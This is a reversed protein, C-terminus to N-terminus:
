RQETRALKWANLQSARSSRGRLAASVRRRVHGTVVRRYDRRLRRYYVARVAKVWSGSLGREDIVDLLQRWSPIDGRSIYPLSSIQRDTVDAPFCEPVGLGCARFMLITRVCKECRGCNSFKQPGAWCVRLHRMAAPWRAIATIKQPRSYGGADHVIPFPESSLLPDSIPHSGWRWTGLFQYPESGAILGVGGNPQLLHLASAIAPGAVDDWAHEVRQVNTAMRVLPLDLTALMAEAKDAAAQFSQKDGIPIDFGHVMVGAGLTQTRRGAEGRAHRYATFCSDVGGSFSFLAGGEGRPQEREREAVIEVKRFRGRHWCAMVAQFEELNALLSPSVEGEVQLTGGARMAKFLPVLVFADSSESLRWGEPLRARYWLSQRPGSPYDVVVGTQTWGDRDIIDERALRTTHAM